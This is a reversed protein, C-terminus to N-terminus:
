LMTTPIAMRFNNFEIEPNFFLMLKGLHNKVEDDGGGDDNM